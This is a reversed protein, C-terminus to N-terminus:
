RVLQGDITYTKDNRLILMKGDRIVKQVRYETSQVGEISTATGTTFTTNVAIQGQGATLHSPAEGNITITMPSLDETYTSVDAIFSYGEKAAVQVQMVYTTNESFTTEEPWNGDPTFFAYALIEYGAGDPVAVSGVVNYLPDSPSLPYGPLEDGAKPFVTTIAVQQIIPDFDQVLRVSNSSERNCYDQPDFYESSFYLIHAGFAGNLTASWYNGESGVDNVNTGYRHGAAPLFVAGNAEMTAWQEATYTNHSFNDRNDNLYYDGKNELGHAISAEFTAGEPLIWNDPLIITGNVGNVSGLGFLTAANARTYFIYYWENKTLTRWLNAENGGNSIANIGWDVFAGAYDSGNTSNRIGYITSATSWGFLDMTGNASVTGNGNISTNASANGIYEYQHEAFTWTWASGNYTAQLNGKSFYVQKGDANVTFKGGLAGETAMMSITSLVVACLTFIKKM